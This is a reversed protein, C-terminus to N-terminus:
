DPFRPLRTEGDPPPVRAVNMTLALLQYYGVLGCLDIVGQEGFRALAQAYTADSVRRTNLIETVMDWVTQEEDTLGSPRRGEAIAAVTAETVGAKLAHKRHAGWEYDQTWCRAVLLIALESLRGSLSCRYRLYEGMRQAHTLLEPSRIFVHWPGSFDVKRTALFDEHAARQDPSYADRPIPPLRAESM